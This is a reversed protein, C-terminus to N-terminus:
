SQTKAPAPRATQRLTDLRQHYEDADIEGRAFRDALVREATPPAPPSAVGRDRRDRGLYRVAAAIALALLVWFLIM